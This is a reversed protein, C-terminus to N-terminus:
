FFDVSTINYMDDIYIAKILSHWFARKETIDLTNYLELINSKLMSKVHSLDRSIPKTDLKLQLENYRKEYDDENIRGKIYLNNLREMEDKIKKDNVVPKNDEKVEFKLIYDKMLQNLRQLLQKEIINENKSKKFDCKKVLTNRYANECRYRNSLLKSGDAHVTTSFHGTLRQGCHPCIILKSFMYTTKGPNQKISNGLIVQIDDFQQKSIYAQCYNEIGRYCGYLMTNKLLNNLSSFNYEFNYKDQLYKITKNKNQYIMFFNIMDIVMEKKDDDIVVCKKGDVIDIKYGLPLAGTIAHGNKIKYDFVSKIRESGRDREQQAVSLMINVKFKGSATINEYDEDIAQWTTNNEDLIAQIQYYKAVSRFWRDLKTFLVMDIKNDKIDKLLRQLELRKKLSNASIGEDVYFDVLQLDNHNDVYTQLADKQASISYGHKKQEDTSVRCYCAVRIIKNM